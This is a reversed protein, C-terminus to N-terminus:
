VDSMEVEWSRNRDLFDAEDFDEDVIMVNEQGLGKNYGAGAGAGAGDISMLMTKEGPAPALAPAPPAGMRNRGLRGKRPVAMVRGNGWGVPALSRPSIEGDYQANRWINLRDPTEPAEEDGDETFSRKRTQLSPSSADVDTITTTISLASDMSEQSSTLGPIDELAAAAAVSMDDVSVASPRYSMTDALTPSVAASPLYINEPQTSLGGISHIGCFPLLERPASFANARSRGESSPYSSSSSSSPAAASNSEDWLAFGSYSGTKYGEPVSKRVRMGVSLLNTQVTAPLPPTGPPQPTRTGYSSAPVPASSPSAFTDLSPTSSGSNSFFFTIQRQAPDSAAGAFPRKVRPASM